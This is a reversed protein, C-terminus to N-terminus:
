ITIERVFIVDGNRLVFNSADPNTMIEQVNVTYVETSGDEYTRKVVVDKKRALRTFGGSRSIADVITLDQDPPIQVTGSRGVMGMVQVSRLRFSVVSLNVQPDVIYDAEYLNRILTRLEAITKGAAPITGLLPLSISGDGEVRVVKLLEPERFVEVRLEDSTQIQYNEPLVFGGVSGIGSDDSFGQDGDQAHGTQAAVFLAAAFLKPLFKKM